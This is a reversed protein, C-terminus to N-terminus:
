GMSVGPASPCMAGMGALLRACPPLCPPLEEGLGLEMEDDALQFTPKSGPVSCPSLSLGLTGTPLLLSAHWIEPCAAPVCAAVRPPLFTVM